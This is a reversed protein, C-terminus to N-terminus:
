IRMSQEGDKPRIVILARVALSLTIMGTCHSNKASSPIAFSNFVVPLLTPLYNHIAIKFSSVNNLKSYINYDKTRTIILNNRILCAIDVWGLLSIVILMSWFGNGIATIIILYFITLPINNFVNRIFIMLNDIKHNHGWLIGIFCGIFLNIFSAFFALKITNYTGILVQYFVNQGFENTGFPYNINPYIFAKEFDVTLYQQPSLCISAIFGAVFIIILIMAPIFFRPSKITKFFFDKYYNKRTVSSSIASNENIKIKNM